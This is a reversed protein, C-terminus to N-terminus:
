HRSPDIPKCLVEASNFAEKDKLASARKSFAFELPTAGFERRFTSCFHSSSAFGCEFAVEKIKINKEVLLKEALQMRVSTLYRIPTQGTTKFARTLYNSSVNLERAIWAVDLDPNRALRMIVQRARLVLASAGTRRRGSRPGESLIVDMLDMCHHSLRIGLASSMSSSEQVLFLVFDRVASIDPSSMDCGLVDRFSYPLGRVKLDERSIRLVGFATKDFTAAYPHLPDMLVLSNPGFTRMSGNQVISISGNKVVNLFLHEGNWCASDHLVPSVRQNTMQIDLALLSGLASEEVISDAHGSTGFQCDMGYTNLMMTTWLRRCAPDGFESASLNYIKKSM